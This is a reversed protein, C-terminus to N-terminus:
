AAEAGAPLAERGSRPAKDGNRRGCAGGTADGRGLKAGAVAGRRDSPAAKPGASAPPPPVETPPAPWQRVGLNPALAPPPPPPAQAQAQPRSLDLRGRADPTARVVPQGAVHTAAALVGVAPDAGLGEERRSDGEVRAAVQDKAGGCDAPQVQEGEDGDALGSAAGGAACRRAEFELQAKSKEAMRVSLRGHPMSLDRVEVGHSAGVAAAADQADPFTVFGFGRSQRTEADRVITHDSVAGFRSFYALLADEDSRLALGGVFIQCGQAVALMRQEQRRREERRETEWQKREERARDAKAAAEARRRQYELKDLKKDYAALAQKYERCELLDTCAYCERSWFVLELRYEAVSIKYNVVCEQLAAKKSKLSSVLAAKEDLITTILSNAKIVEDTRDGDNVCEIKAILNREEERLAALEDIKSQRLNLIKNHAERLLKLKELQANWDMIPGKSSSLMQLEKLLEKEKKLDLCSTELCSAIENHRKEVEEITGFPLENRLKDSKSEQM